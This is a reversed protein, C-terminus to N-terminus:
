DTLRNLSVVRKSIKRKVRGKKAKKMFTYPKNNSFIFYSFNFKYLSNNENVVSDNFPHKYFNVVPSNITSLLEQLYLPTKLVFLILEKFSAYMLVKRIFSALVLYVAKNKIFFKGKNFFSSFLGLSLTLYTEGQLLKLSPFFRNRKFNLMLVKPLKYINKSNNLFGRLHSPKFNLHYQYSNVFNIFSKFVYFKNSFKKFFITFDLRNESV